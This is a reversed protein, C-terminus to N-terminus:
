EPICAVIAPTKVANVIGVFVVLSSDGNSRNSCKNLLGTLKKIMGMKAIAFVLIFNSDLINVFIVEPNLAAIIQPNNIPFGNPIKDNEQNATLVLNLLNGFFTLQFCIVEIPNNPPIPKVIDIKIVRKANSLSKIILSLLSIIRNLENSAPTTPKTVSEYASLPFFSNVSLVCYYVSQTGSEAKTPIIELLSANAVAM